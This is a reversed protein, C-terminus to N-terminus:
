GFIIRLLRDLLLSRPIKILISKMTCSNDNPNNKNILKTFEDISITKILGFYKAISFFFNSFFNGYILLRGNNDTLTQLKIIRVNKFNRILHNALLNKAFLYRSFTYKKTNKYDTNIYIIKTNVSNIKKILKIPRNVTSEIYNEYNSYSSSYDYGCIVIIKPNKIQDYDYDHDIFNNIQRWPIVYYSKNHFKNLFIDIFKVSRGIFIIKNM